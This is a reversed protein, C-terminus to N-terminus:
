VKRDIIAKIARGLRDSIDSAVMGYEGVEDAAMDGALGHVFVGITAAYEPQYGQSMFAAIVGTLVDGAGATAMGPNGTSNFYVKGTTPRITVTHHSKLVIVINYLKAVEIAKKLRAEANPQDGFLRDFEGIHPTIVTHPPLLSLLSPRKVICNLADADLVLPSQCLKLLNELASVTAENTGIGPGIAVAEHNHHLSMDSIFRENRDPEFMAEPVASQLITIGSRATHVTALGAGCKLAARACMVAAGMMGMSGAFIMTSGYDRKASFLARPHLHPRVTRSEVLIWPSTISKIASQDINIDLCKWNGIIPAHEAFFFSLKPFQFTFTHSAHVMDRYRPDPNWEGALGSPIDISVVEAGSENILRVVSAFGGTIPGNIGPGFLGDIVLVSKDLEPPTLSSTIEFFKVASVERLLDRQHECDPSLKGSVNFLYAEINEYGRESLIRAVALADGGNNGPGAFVVIRRSPLVGKVLEKVVAQAAREMLDLSTVGQAECTAADLDKIFKSSIIRM